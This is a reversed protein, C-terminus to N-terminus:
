AEKEELMMWTNRKNHSTRICQLFAQPEALLLCRKKARTLLTYLMCNDLLQHHTNDIIGIVIKRGAGQLKHVTMAYALDLAALEKKTYEILKDKGFIDTYTVVCYEEKKKGEYRESIETIYGIEGNFVNKDYDNVTQMVKAGLKFENEFGSISQLVDGLLKEQIVKNLENTSNLCDKRRPVAIVVNDIGDSDVSKLFTKVAIDFLSQRNNRFMYYMDQLEGHIIRPQLKETIPNINERILNADVLIGSKEAQRMPKVLKSVVSDDFMEILDSFVNGFGIPPLQKHDGSIIIRTNDDIAELWHLFLSANVMSGEDLFAVSTIMHNDKNFSFENLGMCGLTRHITMAPFSTAETIRQAAMASLASATLTFQNETYAKVIARMISTKGTGAKGTILSITRHLSKKITDLQEIVYEFGQEEEAHKIAQEIKEDSINIDTQKKSKELLLNYIQMEIDYYYKLGVKDDEIHLFENNELLWDVKDVCEPVNNSIASKLIKVSCWTHGKSDGLDTFYYKIFAVLRETSNIFEPKLKLALNDVKKFGLGNIKTLLYPNDELQQKLLVPNPEDFLLKKIMTYTVGLPKLMTIIDSILYNNIIKEKIKNWTFERVGKVLDYDIEKLTGNAVDNVVNPYANILNEALWPSIISQLFMLQSERTQPILAYVSIPNYQHGYTKDCKYTAKIMYEGGVVLEQMKGALSSLKRNPNGAKKDEFPLDIKTETTFHPIEDETAFGYVGWTSDENYYRCYTITAKFKLIEEENDFM